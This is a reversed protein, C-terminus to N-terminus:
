CLDLLITGLLAEFLGAELVRGSASRPVMKNSRQQNRAGNQDIKADNEFIKPV